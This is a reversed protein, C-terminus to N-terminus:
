NKDHPQTASVPDSAPFTDELGEKLENDVDMDHKAAEEAEERSKFARSVESGTKYAWGGDKEIIEYSQDAM